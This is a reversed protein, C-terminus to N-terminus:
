GTTSQDEEMRTTELSAEQERESWMVSGTSLSGRLKQQLLGRFNDDLQDISRYRVERDQSSEVRELALDMETM